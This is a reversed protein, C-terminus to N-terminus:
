KQTDLRSTLPNALGSYGTLELKVSGVIVASKALVPLRNKDDTVWVDMPYPQSFVNGTAVMPKFRLCRFRGLDTIVEEKGVFQIQSVYLSDDLYFIVPVNQGPGLNSLDLTRTYYFASLVDQTGPPIKKNARTSLATGSYQNFKVDDSYKYDGERTRRIFSWSFLYEEDMFSEFRDAVKYFWNFAGKTHGEGVLHYVNRGDVQKASQEVELTAIGATVKGTVYSDYYAKFKLKEGRAFAENRAPKFPQAFSNYFSCQFIFLLVPFILSKRM